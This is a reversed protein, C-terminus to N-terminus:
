LAIRLTMRISPIPFASTANRTETSLVRLLLRKRSLTRRLNLRRAFVAALMIYLGHEKM